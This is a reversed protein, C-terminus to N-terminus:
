REKLIASTIYKSVKVCLYVAFVFQGTLSRNKNKEMKPYKITLMMRGPYQNGDQDWGGSLASGFTSLGTAVDKAYIIQVPLDCICANLKYPPYQCVYDTVLTSTHLNYVLLYSM